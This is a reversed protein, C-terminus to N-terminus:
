GRLRLLWRRRGAIRWPSSEFTSEFSFALPSFTVVVGHGVERREGRAPKLLVAAVRPQRINHVSNHRQLQALRGGANRQQHATVRRRRARLRPFGKQRGGLRVMDLQPLSRRWRGLRLVCRRSSLVLQRRVIFGIASLPPRASENYVKLAKGPERLPGRCILPVSGCVDDRPKSGNNSGYGSQSLLIPRPEYVGVNENALCVCDFVCRSDGVLM